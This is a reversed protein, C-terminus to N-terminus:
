KHQVLINSQNDYLFPAFNKYFFFALLYMFMQNAFADNFDWMTSGVVSTLGSSIEFSKQVITYLGDSGSTM